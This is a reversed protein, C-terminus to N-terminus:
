FTEFRSTTFCFDLDFQGRRGWHLRKGRLAPQCLGILDFKNKNKDKQELNSRDSWIRDYASMEEEENNPSPALELLDHM